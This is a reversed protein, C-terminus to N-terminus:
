YVCGACGFGVCCCVGGVAVRGVEGVEYLSSTGGAWGGAFDGGCDYDGDDDEGGEGEAEEVEAAAGAALGALVELVGVEAVVM